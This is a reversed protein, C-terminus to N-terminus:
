YVVCLIYVVIIMYLIFLVFVKPKPKDWESAPKLKRVVVPHVVPSTKPEEPPKPEHLQLVDM